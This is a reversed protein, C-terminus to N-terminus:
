EDAVKFDDCTTLTHYTLLPFSTERLRSVLRVIKFKSARLKVTYIINVISNEFKLHATQGWTM